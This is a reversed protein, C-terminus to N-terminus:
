GGSKMASTVTASVTAQQSSTVTVATPLTPDTTVSVSDPAVLGITYDGPVVMNFDATYVGNSDPDALAIRTGMVSPDADAGKLEAQFDALTVQQGNVMPLTVTDALQFGAQVSGTLDVQTAKLSPHMVWMGSMGGEHGFSESVDFDVLLINQDGNVTLGGPLNVKLGSQACSPCKLTGTVQLSDPVPYGPTAYVSNTGDGNDVVVYGGDVVFRLQGYTGSPVTVGQVLDATSDALTLLDTTVTDQMLEVRGGTSDTASGQLYIDSITVVAAQFDGPADKLRISVSGNAPVSTTDSCAALPLALVVLALIFKSWANKM